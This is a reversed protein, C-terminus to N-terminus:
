SAKGRTGEFRQVAPTLLCVDVSGRLRNGSRQVVLRAEAKIVQEAISRHDVAGTVVGNSKKSRLVGREPEPEPESEGARRLTLRREYSARTTAEVGYKGKWKRKWAEARSSRVGGRVTRSERM